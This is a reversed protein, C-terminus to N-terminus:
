STVENIKELIERRTEEIKSAYDNFNKELNRNLSLKGYIVLLKDYFDNDDNLM